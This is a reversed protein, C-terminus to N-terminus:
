FTLFIAFTFIFFILNWLNFNSHFVIDDVVVMRCWFNVLRKWILQGHQRMFGWVFLRGQEGQEGQEDQGGCGGCYFM